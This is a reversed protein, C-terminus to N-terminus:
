HRPEGPRQAPPRTEGATELTRGIEGTRPVPYRAYPPPTTPTLHETCKQHILAKLETPPRGYPGEWEDHVTDLEGLPLQAFSAPHGNLMCIQQVERAVDRENLTGTTFRRAINHFVTQAADLSTPIPIAMDKFAGPILDHIEHPDSADLGALERVATGDFGDALWQAAWWPLREVYAM